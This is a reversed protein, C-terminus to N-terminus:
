IQTDLKELRELWDAMERLYKAADSVNQPLRVWSLIGHSRYNELTIDTIENDTKTLHLKLDGFEQQIKMSRVIIM